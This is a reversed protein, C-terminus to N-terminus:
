PLAPRLDRGANRFAVVDMGHAFIGLALAQQIGASLCADPDRDVIARVPLLQLEIQGGHRHVVQHHLVVAQYDGGVAAGEPHEVVQRRQSRQRPGIHIRRHLKQRRSGRIAHAKGIRHVAARRAAVVRRRAPQRRGAHPPGGFRSLARSVRTAAAFAEDGGDVM